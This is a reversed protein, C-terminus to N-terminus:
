ALSGQPNSGMSLTQATVATAAVILGTAVLSSKVIGM